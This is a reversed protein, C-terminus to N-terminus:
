DGIFKTLAKAAIPLLTEKEPFELKSDIHYTAPNPLDKNNYVLERKMHELTNNISVTTTTVYDFQIFRTNGSDNDFLSVSYQYVTAENSPKHTVFFYGEKKYLPELGVPAITLNNYVLDYIQQAKHLYHKFQPLSFEAILQLEKLVESGPETSKYILKKNKLDIGTLEKGFLNSLAEKKEIFDILSIYHNKLEPYFPYLLVRSLKDEIEKFYALLLYKKYEFDILHDTIWNDKLM